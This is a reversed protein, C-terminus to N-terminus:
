HSQRLMIVQEAMAAKRNSDLVVQSVVLQLIDVVVVALGVMLPQQLHVAIISLFAVAVVLQFFM